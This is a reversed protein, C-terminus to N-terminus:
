RSGVTRALAAEDAGRVLPLDVVAPSAGYLRARVADAAADLAASKRAPSGQPTFADVLAQAVGLWAPSQPDLAILDNAVASVATVDAAPTLASLQGLAQRARTLADSHFPARTWAAAAARALDGSGRRTLDIAVTAPLTRMFYRAKGFAAQLANLARYEYPLADELNADTLRQEAQAMQRVAELLEQQGSNDLRGAEVEHSHAAEEVEDVVEGGMMFAFEARVRRQQVALAQAEATYAEPAMRTRRELLRETLQIVMRQSLAYRQEPEPLSFDGAALAGPRPIEILYRESEALGAADFRGDRAMAYYVLADGPAMALAELDLSARGEWSTTTARRVLLPLEGDTFTFTEGSGSVRTYRLRVERLGIDDSTSLVLPVTQTADAVRLDQGPQTIRVVPPADPVAQIATTALARGAADHVTLLVSADVEFTAESVPRTASSDGHTLSLQRTGLRASAGPPVGTYRAHVRSGALAEVQPVDAAVDIPPRGTYAPPTVVFSVTVAPASDTSSVSTTSIERGDVNPSEIFSPALWMVMGAAVVAAAALAWHGARRPTLPTTARLATRAQEALRREFAPSTTLVGADVDHWTLLANGLSPVTAEVSRLMVRVDRVLGGLMTRALLVALSAALAWAISGTSAALLLSAALAWVAAELWVQLRWWTWQRTRWRALWTSADRAGTPSPARDGPM